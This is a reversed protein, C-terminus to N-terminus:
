RCEPPLQERARPDAPVNNATFGSKAIDHEINKLSHKLSNYTVIVTREDMNIRINESGEPGSSRRRAANVIREACAKHKMGPVHIIVTRFDNRRCSVAFLCLLSFTLITIKKM